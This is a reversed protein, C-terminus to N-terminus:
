EEPKLFGNTKMMEDYMREVNKIAHPMRNNKYEEHDKCYNEYKWIIDLIENYDEETHGLGRVLSMTLGSFVVRIITLKKNM